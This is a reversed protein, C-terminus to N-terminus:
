RENTQGARVEELEARTSKLEGTKESLRSSVAKLERQVGEIETRLEACQKDKDEGYDANANVDVKLSELEEDKVSLLEEVEEV